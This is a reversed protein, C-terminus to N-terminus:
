FEDVTWPAPGAFALGLAALDPEPGDLLGAERLATRTLYGSYDAALGRVNAELGARDSV